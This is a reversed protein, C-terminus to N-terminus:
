RKTAQTHIDTGLQGPSHRLNMKIGRPGLATDDPVSSPILEQKSFLHISSCTVSRIFPYSFLPRPFCGSEPLPIACGRM